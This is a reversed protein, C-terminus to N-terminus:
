PSSDSSTCYGDFAPIGGLARYNQDIGGSGSFHITSTVHRQYLLQKQQYIQYNLAINDFTWQHNDAVM